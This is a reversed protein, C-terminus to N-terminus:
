FGADVVEGMLVAYIALIPAGLMEEGPWCLDWPESRPELGASM